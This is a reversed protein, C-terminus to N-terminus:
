TLRVQDTPSDKSRRMARSKNSTPNAARPFTSFVINARDIFSLLYLTTLIPLLHLDIKQMIKKDYEDGISLTAFEQECNQEKREQYAIRPKEERIESQPPLGAM